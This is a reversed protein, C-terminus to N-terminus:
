SGALRDWGQFRGASKLFAVPRVVASLLSWGLVSSRSTLWAM